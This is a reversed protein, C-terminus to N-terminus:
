FGNLPKRGIALLHFSAALLSEEEEVLKMYKLALGYFRDNRDLWENLENM